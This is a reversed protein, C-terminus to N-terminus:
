SITIQQTSLFTKKGQQEVGSASTHTQEYLKVTYTGSALANNLPDSRIPQNPLYNAVVIRSESLEGGGQPKTFASQIKQGDSNYLELILNRMWTSGDTNKKYFDNVSWGVPLQVDIVKRNGGNLIITRFEWPHSKFALNGQWLVVETGDLFKGTVTVLTTGAVFGGVREFLLPVGISRIASDNRRITNGDVASVWLGELTSVDIGTFL